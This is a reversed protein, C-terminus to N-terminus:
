DEARKDLAKNVRSQQTPAATHVVPALEETLRDIFNLAARYGRAVGILNDANGREAIALDHLHSPSQNEPGALVTM